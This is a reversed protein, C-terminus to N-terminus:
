TTVAAQLWAVARAISHCAIPDGMPEGIVILPERVHEYILPAWPVDPVPDNGFKYQRVEVGALMARLMHGGARPAEWTVLLEPPQADDVMLGAILVADAGGMSHGTLRVRRGSVLPALLGWLGVAAGLFGAHCGGLRPHQISYSPWGSVDRVWDALVTPRTGRIAVDLADADPTIVARADRYDVIVGVPTPDYTAASLIAYSLDGV